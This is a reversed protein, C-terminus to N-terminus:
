LTLTLNLTPLMVALMIFALILGMVITLAPETLKKFNELFMKQEREFYQASKILTGPLTGTSEGLRTMNVLIPHFIGTNDLSKHLTLGKELDSRVNELATTYIANDFLGKATSVSTLMDVGAELMTAMGSSFRSSMLLRAAKRLFPIKYWLNAKVAFYLGAGILAAPLIFLGSAFFNSIGILIRTPLPLELNQLIFMGTFSPVLYIMTVAIVIIMSVLVIIPYTLLAKIEGYAAAEKQYHNEMQSFILELKGSQEGIKVMNTLFPPFSSMARSMSEGKLLEDKLKNIYKQLIPNPSTVIEDINTLPLGSSILFHMQKCFLAFDKSKVKKRSGIDRLLVPQKKVSLILHNKNKLFLIAENLNAAEVTGKEKIKNLSIIHYNYIHTKTKM